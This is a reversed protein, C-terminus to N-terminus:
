DSGGGHSGHAPEVAWGQLRSALGSEQRLRLEHHWVGGDVPDARNPQVWLLGCQRTDWINILVVVKKWLPNEWHMLGLRFWWSTSLKSGSLDLTFIQFYM